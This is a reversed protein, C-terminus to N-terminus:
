FAASVIDNGRLIKASVSENPTILHLPEGANVQRAEFLLRIIRLAGPMM